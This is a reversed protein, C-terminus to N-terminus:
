RQGSIVELRNMSHNGFYGDSWLVLVEEPDGIEEPDIVTIIGVLAPDVGAAELCVLDGVQM